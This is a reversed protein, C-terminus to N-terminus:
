NKNELNVTLYYVTGPWFESRYKIHESQCIQKDTKADSVTVLINYFPEPVMFEVSCARDRKLVRFEGSIGTIPENKPSISTLSVSINKTYLRCLLPINLLVSEFIGCIRCPVVGYKTGGYRIYGM